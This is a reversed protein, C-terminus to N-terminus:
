VVGDSDSYDFCRSGARLQLKTRTPGESKLNFPLSDPRRALWQWSDSETAQTVTRTPGAAAAFEKDSVRVRGSRARLRSTLRGPQTRARAWPGPGTRRGHDSDLNGFGPDHGLKADPRGV